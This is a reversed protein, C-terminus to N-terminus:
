KSEGLASRLMYVAHAAADVGLNFADDTRSEAHRRKAAVCASVAARLVAERCDPAPAFVPFMRVGDVRSYQFMADYPYEPPLSDEYLWAVIETM